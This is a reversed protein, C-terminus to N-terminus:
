YPSISLPSHLDLWWAGRGLIAVIAALLCILLWFTVPKQRREIPPGFPQYLTGSSASLGALVAVAIAFAWV